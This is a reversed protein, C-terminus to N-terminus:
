NDTYSGRAKLIPRGQTEDQHNDQDCSKGEPQAAKPDIWLQATTAIYIRHEREWKLTKVRGDNFHAALAVAWGIINPDGVCLLFDEDSFDALYERLTEVARLSHKSRVNHDLITIMQGFREAASLDHTFV